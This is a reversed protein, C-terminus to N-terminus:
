PAPRAGHVAQTTVPNGQRDTGTVRFVLTAGAPIPLSASRRSEGPELGPEGFWARVTTGTQAGPRYSTDTAAEGSPVLREWAANELRVAGGHTRVTLRVSKGDPGTECRLSLRATRGPLRILSVQLEAAPDATVTVRSRAAGPSHLLVYAVGTGAVHIEHDGRHLPVEECRPGCLMRSGLPRRLDLGRLPAVGDAAAGTGALLLAASWERFLDAFRQQAAVELNLTGQLNSQILRAPLDAGCRDRCWRLFLYASGRTGPDRWIGAGYYDPVVLRYRQPANLFASVRYDLNSWSYGHAEEAMHALAENLWSEEDRRGAVPLYEGFVHESFVVAHTYEHALLTRLHPGPKLDTNLYMMDCHNGFPAAVDRYFDSGRVFGGLAVKGKQLRALWPTFLITFRGDRDVDLVQGLQRRALPYVAEDFTRVADEVTPQLGARDRHNRDVYVQCHRGVARLEAAVAAYERTNRFDQEGTFLHFVKERPPEALSVFQEFQTRRRRVRELREGLECLYAAEARDRAPPEIPVTEPGTTAETRVTVRCPGAARSLSGLVLYLQEDPRATALVAECRGDRVTLPVVSAAHARPLICPALLLLLAFVCAGPRRRKQADM